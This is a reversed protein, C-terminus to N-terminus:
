LVILFSALIWFRMIQWEDRFVKPLMHTCVKQSLKSDDDTNELMRQRQIAQTRRYEQKLLLTQVNQKHQRFKEIISQLVRPDTDVGFIKARSGGTFINCFWSVYFDCLLSLTLFLLSPKFLITTSYNSSFKLNKYFLFLCRQSSKDFAHCSLM